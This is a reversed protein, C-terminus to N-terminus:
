AAIDRIPIPESVEVGVLQRRLIHQIVDPIRHLPDLFLAIALGPYGVHQV